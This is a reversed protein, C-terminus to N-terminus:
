LGNGVTSTLAKATPFFDLLKAQRAQIRPDTHLLQRHVAQSTAGELNGQFRLARHATARDPSSPTVWCFSFGLWGLRAHRELGPGGKVRM